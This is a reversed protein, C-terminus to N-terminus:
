IIYSIAFNQDAISFFGMNFRTPSSVVVSKKKKTIDMPQIFWLNKGWFKFFDQILALSCHQHGIEFCSLLINRSSLIFSDHTRLVLKHNRSM